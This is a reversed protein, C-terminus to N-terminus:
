EWGTEESELRSVDALHSYLRLTAFCVPIGLAM